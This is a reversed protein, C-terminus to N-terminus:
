AQEIIGRLLPFARLFKQALHQKKNGYDGTKRRNTKRMIGPSIYNGYNSEAHFEDSGVCVSADRKWM